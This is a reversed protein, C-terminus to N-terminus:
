MQFRRIAHRFFQPRNWGEAVWSSTGAARRGELCQWVAQRYAPMGEAMSPPSLCIFERVCSKSLGPWIACFYHRWSSTVIACFFERALLRFLVLWFWVERSWSSSQQRNSGLLRNKILKEIELSGYYTFTSYHETQRHWTIRNSPLAVPQASTFTKGQRQVMLDLLGKM